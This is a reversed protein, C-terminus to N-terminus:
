KMHKKYQIQYLRLCSKYFGYKYFWLLIGYRLSSLKILDRLKVDMIWDYFCSSEKLESVMKVKQTISISCAPHAVTHCLSGLVMQLWFYSYELRNEKLVPMWDMLYNFLIRPRDLITKITYEHFKASTSFGLRIYHKYYVNSNFEFSAGEGLCHWLFDYDESGTKFYLNFEIHHEDLFSKRFLSDWVCEFAYIRWLEWFRNKIQENTVIENCFSHVDNRFIRGQYSHIANSGFKIIDVGSAEIRNYNDELQNPSYEDDHDSFAIYKGQAVKLAANRAACIGGNKQHIVVVRGDKRAYEDCQESSGDTSGDDVLILEFEKLSQSLISEVSTKLYEGSNYVPMIVSVKIMNEM